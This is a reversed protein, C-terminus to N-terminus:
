WRSMDVFGSQVFLLKFRGIQTHLAVRQSTLDKIKFGLVSGEWLSYDVAKEKNYGGLAIYSSSTPDLLM